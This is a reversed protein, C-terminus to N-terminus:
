RRRGPHNRQLWSGYLAESNAMLWRIYAFGTAIGGGFTALLGLLPIVEPSAGKPTLLALLLVIVATGVLITWIMGPTIRIGQDVRPIDAPPKPQKRTFRPKVAAAWGVATLVTGMTFLVLGLEPDEGSLLSLAWHVAGSLCLVAPNWWASFVWSRRQAFGLALGRPDDSLVQETM